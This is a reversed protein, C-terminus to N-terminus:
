YFDEKSSAAHFGNGGMKELIVAVLAVKGDLSFMIKLSDKMGALPFM